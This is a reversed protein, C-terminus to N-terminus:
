MALVVLDLLRQQSRQEKITKHHAHHVKAPAKRKNQQATDGHHHHRIQQSTVAIPRMFRADDANERKNSREGAVHLVMDLVVHKGSNWKVIEPLQVVSDFVIERGSWISQPSRPFADELNVTFGSGVWFIAEGGCDRLGIAVM